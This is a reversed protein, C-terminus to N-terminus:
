FFKDPLPLYNSFASPAHDLTFLLLLLLLLPLTGMKDINVPRIIPLNTAHTRGHTLLPQQSKSTEPERGGFATETRILPPVTDVDWLGEIPM